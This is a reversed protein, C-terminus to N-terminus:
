IQFQLPMHYGVRAMIWGNNRNWVHIPYELYRSIWYMTTFDGWLGGSTAFMSMKQIYTLENTTQEHQKDMIYIM